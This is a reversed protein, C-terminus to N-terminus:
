LVREREFDYNSLIQGTAPDTAVAYVTFNTDVPVGGPWPGEYVTFEQREAVALHLGQAQPEPLWDPYFYLQGDFGIAVYFDVDRPQLMSRVSATIKAQYGERLLHNRTSVNVWPDAMAFATSTSDSNSFICGDRVTLEGPNSAFQPVLSLDWHLDAYLLVLYKDRYSVWGKDLTTELCAGSGDVEDLCSPGVARGLVEVEDYVYTDSYDSYEYFYRYSYVFMGESVSPGRYSSSYSPLGHGDCTGLTHPVVTNGDWFGMEEANLWGASKGEMDIRLTAADPQALISTQGVDWLNISNDDKNIWVIRDQETAIDNAPSGSLAFADIGNYYYPPQLAGPDFPEFVIRDDDIDFIRCVGSWVLRDQGTEEEWLHLDGGSGDSANYVVRHNNIQPLQGKTVDSVMAHESVSILGRGPDWVLLHQGDMVLFQGEDTVGRLHPISWRSPWQNPATTFYLELALCRTSVTIGVVLAASTVVGALLLTSRM